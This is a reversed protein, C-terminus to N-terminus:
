YNLLLSYKNFYRIGGLDRALNKTHEGKLINHCPLNTKWWWVCICVFVYSMSSQLFRTFVWIKYLYIYRSGQHSLLLSLAQLPPSAPSTPEMGPHPLDGPPHCPLGSWFELRSFGISLPAQHAVTWLTACLRVCSFHSLMCEHIYWTCIYKYMYICKWKWFLLFHTLVILSFLYM